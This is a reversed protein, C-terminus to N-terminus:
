WKERRLTWRRPPLWRGSLHQKQTGACAVVGHNRHVAYRGLSLESNSHWSWCLLRMVKDARIVKWSRLEEVLGFFDLSHFHCFDHKKSRESPPWSLRNLPNGHVVLWIRVCWRCESGLVGFHYKSFNYKGKLFIYDNFGVDEHAGIFMFPSESVRGYHPRLHGLFRVLPRSKRV